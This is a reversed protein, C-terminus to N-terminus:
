RTEPAIKVRTICLSDPSSQWRAFIATALQPRQPNCFMDEAPIMIMTSIQFSSPLTKGRRQCRYVVDQASQTPSIQILVSYAEDIIFERVVEVDGASLKRSGKKYCVVCVKERCYEHSTEFQAAM